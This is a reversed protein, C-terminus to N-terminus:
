GMTSNFYFSALNDVSACELSISTDLGKIGFMLSGVIINWKEKEIIQAPGLLKSLSELSLFNWEGNEREEQLLIGEKIFQAKEYDSNISSTQAQGM